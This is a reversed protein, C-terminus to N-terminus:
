DKVGKFILWVALGLEGIAMPLPIIMELNSAIGSQAITLNLLLVVM